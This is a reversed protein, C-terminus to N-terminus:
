IESRAGLRNKRLGYSRSHLALKRKRRLKLSRSRGNTARASTKLPQARYSNEDFHDPAVEQQARATTCALSIAATLILSSIRRM